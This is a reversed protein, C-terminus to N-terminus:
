DYWRKGCSHRLEWQTDLLSRRFNARTERLLTSRCSIRDWCHVCLEWCTAFSHPSQMEADHYSENAKHNRGGGVRDTILSISLNEVERVGLHDILPNSWCWADRPFFSEPPVSKCVSIDKWICKDHHTFQYAFFKVTSCSNQWFSLNPCYWFMLDNCYWHFTKCMVQSAQRSSWTPNYLKFEIRHLSSKQDVTRVRACCNLKCSRRWWFALLPFRMLNVLVTWVWSKPHQFRMMDVLSNLLCYDGSTSLVCILLQFIM